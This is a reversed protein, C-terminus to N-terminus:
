TYGHLNSAGIYSMNHLYFVVGSVHYVLTKFGKCHIVHHAHGMYVPLIGVRQVHPTWACEHGETAQKVSIIM